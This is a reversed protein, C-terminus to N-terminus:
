RIIYSNTPKLSADFQATNFCSDKDSFIVMPLDHRAFIAKARIIDDTTENRQEVLEFYRSYYDEVAFNREM